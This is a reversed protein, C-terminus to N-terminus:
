PLITHHAPPPPDTKRKAGNALAEAIRKQEYLIMKVLGAQLVVNAWVVLALRWITPHQGFSNLLNLYSILIFSVIALAIIPVHQPFLRVDHALHPTRISWLHAIKFLAGFNAVMICIAFWRVCDQWLIATLLTM